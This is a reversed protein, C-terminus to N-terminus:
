RADGRGVEVAQLEVNEDGGVDSEGAVSDARDEFDIRFRGVDGGEEEEM